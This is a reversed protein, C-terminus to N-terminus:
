RITIGEREMVFICHRIFIRVADSRSCYIGESVYGDILKAETESVMTTITRNKKSM